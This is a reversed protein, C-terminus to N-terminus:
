MAAVAAAAFLVAIALAGPHRGLGAVSEAGAFLKRGDEHHNRRIRAMLRSIAAADATRSRM